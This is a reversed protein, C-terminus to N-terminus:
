PEVHKDDKEGIYWVWQPLLLCQHCRLCKTPTQFGKDIFSVLITTNPIGLTILVNRYQMIRNRLNYEGRPFDQIYFHLRIEWNWPVVLRFIHGSTTGHFSFCVKHQIYIIAIRFNNMDTGDNNSKYQMYTHKRNIFVHPQFTFSTTRFLPLLLIVSRRVIKCLSLWFEYTYLCVFDTLL